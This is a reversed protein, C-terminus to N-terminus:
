RAVAKNLKVNITLYGKSYKTSIWRTNANPPLRFADNYVTTSKDAIKPSITVNLYNKDTNIRINKQAIGKVAIHVEFSDETRELKVEEVMNQTFMIFEVDVTSDTNDKNVDDSNYNDNDEVYSTHMHYSDLEEQNYSNNQNFQM